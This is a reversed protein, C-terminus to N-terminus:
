IQDNSRLRTVRSVVGPSVIQTIASVINFYYNRTRFPAFRRSTPVNLKNSVSRSFTLGVISRIQNISSRLRFMHLVGLFTSRRVTFTNGISEVSTPVYPLFKPTFQFACCTSHQLRSYILVSSIKM